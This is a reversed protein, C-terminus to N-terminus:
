SVPAAREPYYYRECQPRILLTHARCTAPQEHHRQESGEHNCRKRFEQAICGQLKGFLLLYTVEEFGNHREAGTIGDAIKHVDIGRYYLEGDCSVEEGDVIKKSVIESIETLGTLVGKGNLDRLGRNVKNKTYLETDIKNAECMKALEIIEPTLRSFKNM